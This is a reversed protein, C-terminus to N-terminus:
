EFGVNDKFTLPAHYRKPTNHSKISDLLNETKNSTQNTGPYLYRVYNEKSSLNWVDLYMYM